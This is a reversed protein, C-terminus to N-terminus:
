GGAAFPVGSMYFVYYTQTLVPEGHALVTVELCAAGAQDPEVQQQLDSSSVPTAKIEQSWFTVDYSAGTSLQAPAHTVGDLALVQAFTMRLAADRVEDALFTAQTIDEGRQAVVSEHGFAALLAVFGLVLLVTCVLVEALTFAGRPATRGSQRPMAIMTM